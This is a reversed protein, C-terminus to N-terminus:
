GIMMIQLLENKTFQEMSKRFVQFAGAENVVEYLFIAPWVVILVALASWAGKATEMVLHAPSAKYIFFATLVATLFGIPAAKMAGMQFKVMLVMLVLVPAAAMAWMWANVPINM